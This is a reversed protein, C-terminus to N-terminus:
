EAHRRGRGGALRTNPNLHVPKLQVRTGEHPEGGTHGAEILPDMFPRADRDTSVRPLAFPLLGVVEKPSFPGFHAPPNCVAHWRAEDDPRSTRYVIERRMPSYVEWVRLRTAERVAFMRLQMIVQPRLNTM